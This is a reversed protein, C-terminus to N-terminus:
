VLLDAVVNQRQSYPRCRRKFWKATSWTPPLSTGGIHSAEHVPLDNFSIGSIRRKDDL